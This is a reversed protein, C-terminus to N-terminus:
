RIKVKDYLYKKGLIEGCTMFASVTVGLAGHLNVNQGTFYLNSVKSQPSLYAQFPHNFDKAYGYISGQPTYFYDRYTLPTSIDVSVIKGKIEPFRKYVENLLIEAKKAKFDAYDKGRDEEFGVTNEIHEWQKVEDYHMYALVIVSEAFAGNDEP